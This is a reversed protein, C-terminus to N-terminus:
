EEQEKREEMLKEKLNFPLEEYKLFKQSFRGRGQTLSTLDIAYNFAESQPVSAKILQKKNSDPTM